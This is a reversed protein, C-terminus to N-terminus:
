CLQEPSFVWIQECDLVAGSVGLQLFRLVIATILLLRRKKAERSWGTQLCGGM